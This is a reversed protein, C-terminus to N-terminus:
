SNGPSPRLRLGAPAPAPSVAVSWDNTAAAEPRRCQTLPRGEALARLERACLKRTLVIGTDARGLQEANRDAIRGQGLQAVADQVRVMQNRKPDLDALRLQGALIAETTEQFTGQKALWADRGERYRRAAGGAEPVRAVGFQIHSQNDIPTWRLLLELRGFQTGRHACRFAMLHAGGGEGRYLTFDEGMIRIPAACGPALHEAVCVPQWLSRLYRGALTGPGTHAFDKYHQATYRLPHEEWDGSM